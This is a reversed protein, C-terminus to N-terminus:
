NGRGTIAMRQMSLKTQMLQVAMSHLLANKNLEALEKDVAVNNGDTRMPSTRDTEIKLATPAQEGATIAKAVEVDFIVDLRAYGPTDSNAVNNALVNNRTTTFDLLHVLLKQTVDLTESM